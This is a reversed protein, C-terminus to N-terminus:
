VVLFLFIYYYVATKELFHSFVVFQYTIFYSYNLFIVIVPDLYGL